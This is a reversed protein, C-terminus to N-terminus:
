PTTCSGGISVGNSLNVNANTVTVPVFNSTNCTGGDTLGDYYSAFEGAPVPWTSGGNYNAGNSSDFFAGIYYVGPTVGNLSYTAYYNATGDYTM